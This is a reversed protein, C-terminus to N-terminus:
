ELAKIANDIKLAQETITVKQAKNEEELKANNETLTENSTLLTINQLKLKELQSNLEKITSNLEKITVNLAEIEKNLLENKKVEEEYLEKYKDEIDASQLSSADVWMELIIDKSYEIKIKYPHPYSMPVVDIIEGVGPVAPRSEATKDFYSYSLSSDFAVKDEINFEQPLPEVWECIDDADVWGDVTGFSNDDTHKVKYPHAKTFSVIDKIEAKGGICLKQAGKTANTYHYIGDFNIIDGTKWQKQEDLRKQVEERFWNMNKGFLKMWHEPDAHNSAYGLKAAECHSTINESTWNFQKCLYVCFEIAETFVANFYNEDKKNDEEIEFQIYPTPEYNYSGKSGAGCGWCSYNYPLLQYTEVEDKANFGIMAHVCVNVGPRNWSNNYKNKGLDALIEDYKPDTKSPQVWRRLYKQSTGTSHVLIGIPQMQSPKKGHKTSITKNNVGYDYCDSNYFICEKLTM